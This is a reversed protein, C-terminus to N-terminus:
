VAHHPLYWLPKFMPVEDDPVRRLAGETLYKDMVSSCRQHFVPDKRMNRELCSLISTATSLSEPLNPVEQRFPLKLQYHGNVISALRDILEQAKRDEVSM